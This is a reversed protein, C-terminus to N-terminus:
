PSNGLAARTAELEALSLRGDRLELGGGQGECRSACFTDKDDLPLRLGDSFGGDHCACVTGVDAFGVYAVGIVASSLIAILLWPRQSM